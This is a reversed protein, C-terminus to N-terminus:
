MYVLDIRIRGQREPLARDPGSVEIMVPQHPLSASSGTFEREVTLGELRAELERNVADDLVVATAQLTGSAQARASEPAGALAGAAALITGVQVLRNRSM